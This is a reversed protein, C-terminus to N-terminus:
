INQQRKEQPQKIKTTTKQNTKTQPTNKHKKIWNM